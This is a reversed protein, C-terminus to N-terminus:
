GIAWEVVYAAHDSLAGGEALSPPHRTGVPNWSAPGALHDISMCGPRASPLDSTFALLGNREFMAVLEARGANSGVVMGALTQNFDGAVLIPVGRHQAALDDILSSTERLVHTWHERSPLADPVAGPPLPPAARRWPMCLAVVVLPIDPCDVVAAVARPVTTAPLSTLPWRTSIAAFAAAKGPIPSSVALNGYPASAPDVETFAWIDVDLERILDQENPRAFENGGRVRSEL